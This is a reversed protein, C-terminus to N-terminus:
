RPEIKPPIYKAGPSTNGTPGYVRLIVDFPGRPVPLWNPRLAPAPPSTQIYITISGNPNTVLGPTFRAVEYKQAANPVLTNGRPLYATLSWFRNAQPLQKKSFTLRYAPVVSGNLPAGSGDTFANYYGAASANNGYQVYENGAARDLYATGWDAFNSFYTWHNRDVHSIWRNIIMAHAARAGSIMQSLPGANGHRAAANAAAFLRNFAASLQLDSKSLPVTAPSRLAAQVVRFFHTTHFRVADDAIAKMRLAFAAQPLITTAGASPNSEYTPLSALRLSARFATAQDIQNQNTSSYKDARIIWTTLPYPVQVETVGPPLTGTFGAPVLGYTGPTQPQINTKFVDGFVDLTLLSYTVDTKPITFIQPGQSLDLYFSSYITDVNISVVFGYLPGVRNPGAIRNVGSLRQQFYTMFRPYYRITYNEAVSFYPKAAPAAPRASGAAGAPALTAFAISAAVILAILCRAVVPGARRPSEVSGLM